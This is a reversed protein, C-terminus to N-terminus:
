AKNVAKQEGCKDCTYFFEPPKGAIYTIVKQYHSHVLRGGCGEHLPKYSSYCCTVEGALINNADDVYWGKKHLPVWNKHFTRGCATCRAVLTFHNPNKEPDGSLWGVLTTSTGYDTIRADVCGFPCAVDKNAKLYKEDM